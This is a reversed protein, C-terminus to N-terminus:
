PSPARTRSTWHIARYIPCIGTAGTGILIVGVVGIVLAAAFQLAGFMAFGLLGAGLIIRLGRDVASENRYDKMTGGTHRAWLPRM